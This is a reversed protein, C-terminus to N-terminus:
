NKGNVGNKEQKRYSEKMMKIEKKHQEKAITIWKEIVNPSNQLLAPYKKNLYAKLIEVEQKTPIVPAIPIPLPENKKYLKSFMYKLKVAFAQSPADKHIDYIGKNDFSAREFTIRIIKFPRRDKTEYTMEMMIVTKGALEKKPFKGNKIKYVPIEYVKGDHVCLYKIRM